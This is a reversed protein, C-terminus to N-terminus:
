RPRPAARPPPPRPPPKPKVSPRPVPKPPPPAGGKITGPRLSLGPVTWAVLWTPRAAGEAMLFELGGERELLVTKKFVALLRTGKGLSDDRHVLYVGAPCNFRGALEESIKVLAAHKDGTSRGVLEVGELQLKVPEEWGVRTHVVTIGCREEMVWDLYRQRVRRNQAARQKGGFIKPCRVRGVRLAAAGDIKDASAPGGAALLFAVTLGRLGRAGPGSV